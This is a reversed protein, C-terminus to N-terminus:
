INRSIKSVVGGFSNIIDSYEESFVFIIRGDLKEVIEKMEDFGKKTVLAVEINELNKDIDKYIWNKDINKLFDEIFPEEESDITRLFKQLLGKKVLYKLASEADPVTLYIAKIDEKLKSNFIYNGCIIVNKQNRIIEMIKSKLENYDNLYFESEFIKKRSLPTVLYAVITDIDYAIILYKEYHQTKKMLDLQSLLLRKKVLLFKSRIGLKIHHHKHLPVNKDSSYIIEGSVNVHEGISIYEVRIGIRTLIIEVKNGIKNKRRSKSYLTDGKEILFNLASIDDYSNILISIKIEGSERKIKFKM